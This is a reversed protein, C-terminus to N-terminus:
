CRTAPAVEVKVGEGRRFVDFADAYDPLAVRHTLMADGDIVGRQLLEGARAFSHVIARSGIVRIEEHFLSFPEFSATEGAATVGFLLFTGGPRVRRLGDEIAPVAGSADVVAEWGQPRDLAEAAPATADAGLAAARALREPNPDVVSVSGSAHAVALQLLILGMTGAGYILVHDALRLHLLDFGHVACAVPEVLAGWRHPFGEPLVFANAAPVAVFDAFGGDVGIVGISRGRECLNFRGLRCFHCAGCAIKPEVAVSDGEAVGVVDRGAAVVTGTFEHGPVIPYRADPLEGDFLHLDTGCVGCGAPAVVVDGPGPAPDPLTTVEHDGPGSLLLAQL